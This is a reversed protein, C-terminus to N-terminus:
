ADWGFNDEAEADAALHLEAQSKPPVPPPPAADDFGAVDEPQLGARGITRPIGQGGDYVRVNEGGDAANPLTANLEAQLSSLDRSPQGMASPESFGMPADEVQGYVSEQVPSILSGGSGGADLWDLVIRYVHAYQEPTQVMAARQTRMHKVVSFLDIHGEQELQELCIMAAIIVGTRGVGASCHVVLPKMQQLIAQETIIERNGYISEEQPRVIQSKGFANVRRIMDVIDRGSAPAGSAPWVTYQWHRVERSQESVLDTLVLRREVGYPLREEGRLEVQYDGVNMPPEDPDPWYQEAKVRGNEELETMMVISHADRDWVMRWFDSVTTELPGQTAIFAGRRKLSDIWSANIYDTGVVGPVPPLKVRTADFPMINQFRNKPKNALLQAADTRVVPPPGLTLRKFEAALQTGGGQAPAPLKEFHKRLTRPSMETAANAIADALTRYIFIYQAETQVM